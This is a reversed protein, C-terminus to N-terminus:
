LGSEQAVLYPRRDHARAPREGCRLPDSLAMRGVVFFTAKTCEEDLAELIPRTYRRMPGDDFTLVVEKDQSLSTPFPVPRLAAWEGRRNRRDRSVGIVDTGAARVLADLRPTASAAAHAATTLALAGIRRRLCVSM